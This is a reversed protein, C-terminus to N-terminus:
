YTAHLQKALANRNATGTKAYINGLHFSVTSKSVYLDRAIQAYSLGGAALTAIDRERPTLSALVGVSDASAHRAGGASIKDVYPVAGLTRYKELARDRLDTGAGEDGCAMTVRALDALAHARYLPLGAGPVAVAATLHNRASELDGAREDALGRLWTQTWANEHQYPRAAVMLHDYEEARLLDGAWVAALALHILVLGGAPGHIRDGFDTELDHLTRRQADQDGRAHAFAVRTVAHLHVAERWPAQRLATLSENILREAIAPDGRVIPLLPRVARSMPHPSSFASDVALDISVQALDWAGLQWLALGRLGDYMGDGASSTLGSRVRRTVEALDAEAAAADGNFARLGGRWALDVSREAAVAAPSEPLSAAIGFARDNDHERLAIMGPGWAILGPDSRSSEDALQQLPRLRDVSDGIAIRASLHLVAIRYRTLPDSRELSDESIASFTDVADSYRGEAYLLAGRVMAGRVDGDISRLTFSPTADALAREVAHLDGGLVSQFLSEAYRAGREHPESSVSSAWRFLRAALRFDLHRWADEGAAQLEAALLDDYSFTAAVRHQLAELHSTAHRAAAVHLERREALGISQYAAAQLLAHSFRIPHGPETAREELLGLDILVAVAPVPDEIGAVAAAVPLPIWGAGLVGVANVLQEAEPFTATLSRRVSLTLEQPAPLSSMETVENVTYSRLLSRIFLPNGGTQEVLRAVGMESASPDIGRILELACPLTLGHLRVSESGHGRRVIRSWVRDHALWSARAAVVVLLRDRVARQTLWYLAELSATDAWQIDDVAIIVPRQAALSDVRERLDQAAVIPDKPAGEPTRTHDVGLHSLVTFPLTDASQCEAELISFGSARRIVERLLASKGMGPDGSITLVTPNGLRAADIAREVTDIDAALWTGAPQPRATMSV